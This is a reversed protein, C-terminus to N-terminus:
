KKYRDDNGVGKETYYLLFIMNVCAHALHNLKTEEDYTDGSNWKAMHRQAAAYIRSWNMGNRWNHDGYKEAGFGMVKAIELLAESPILDMRPKDEDYKIGEM